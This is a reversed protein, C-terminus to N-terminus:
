RNFVGTITQQISEAAARPDAADRIPRGVVIYDAGDAFADAPTVVRKQDGVAGALASSPAQAAPRIGPTVIRFPEGIASVAASATAERIARAERGSAIVGACGADRAQVARACVLSQVDTVAYGMEGLDAADLSTLVTVALIGIEGDAADVAARMIAPDGHVTVYRIGRGRLGAVAAGVTAPIDFFKLDAFIAKGDGALRDVLDFYSASTLLGLGLKYFHVADGLTAVMQRAAEDGAVDLAFILRERAPLADPQARTTTSEM